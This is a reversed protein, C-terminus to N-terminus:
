KRLRLDQDITSVFRLGIYCNGRKEAMMSPTRNFCLRVVTCVFSINFNFDLLSLDPGTPGQELITGNDRQGMTGVGLLRNNRQRGEHKTNGLHETQGHHERGSGVHHGSTRIDLQGINKRGGTTGVRCGSIM